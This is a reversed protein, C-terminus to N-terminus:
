PGPEVKGIFRYGEGPVTQIFTPTSAEDGMARRLEAIHTDVMRTGTPYDPGWVVELLRDRKILEDPHTMLYELLSVAKPTLSLEQNELIVRRARRDLILRSCSLQWSAALPPQGPRARHLISQIRAVLDLPDFPRNICDDAGEELAMTREAAEGMRTMLIVPTWDGSGRLRRLVQRGNMPPMLVDLLILDPHLDSALELAQPGDPAVRVAFGSRELFSALNATIATEDGVLLM